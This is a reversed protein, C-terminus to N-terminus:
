VKRSSTATDLKLLLDWFEAADGSKSKGCPTTPTKPKLEPPPTPPKRDILNLVKSSSELCYLSPKPKVPLFQSPFSKALNSLVDLTHRCFFGCHNINLINTIDTEIYRRLCLKFSNFYRSISPVAQNHIHIVRTEAGSKRGTAIATRRIEFVSARCGLAADLNINLWSPTLLDVQKQMAPDKYARLENSSWHPEVDSSAASLATGPMASYTLPPANGCENAREM